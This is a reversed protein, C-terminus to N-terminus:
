VCVHRLGIGKNLSKRSRRVTIMIHIRQLSIWRAWIFLFFRHSTPNSCGHHLYCRAMVVLSCVHVYQNTDKVEKGWGCSVTLILHFMRPNEHLLTPTWFKLNKKILPNVQAMEHYRFCKVHELHADVYSLFIPTSFWPLMFFSRVSM